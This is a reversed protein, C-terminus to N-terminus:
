LRGGSCRASTTENAITARGAVVAKMSPMEQRGRDDATAKFQIRQSNDDGQREPCPQPTRRAREQRRRDQDDAENELFMQHRLLIVGEGPRLGPVNWM